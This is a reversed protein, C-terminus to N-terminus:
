GVTQKTMSWDQFPDFADVKYACAYNGHRNQYLQHKVANQLRAYENVDYLEDWYYQVFRLNQELIEAEQFERRFDLDVVDNNLDALDANAEFYTDEEAIAAEAADNFLAHHPDHDAVLEYFSESEEEGRKVREEVMMNHLCMTGGVLYHIDDTKFLRCPHTVSHFKKEWVGLCREIEKRHSEQWSTFERDIRTIPLSLARVFRALLPYILDVKLWLLSFIEGNIIYQFNIEHIGGHTMEHLLSSREWVNVDNLSGPAGFCWHWIWLNADCAVEMGLTPYGRRGSHQGKQSSPCM